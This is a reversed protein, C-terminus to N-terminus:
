PFVDHAAARAKPFVIIGGELRGERGLQVIDRGLGEVLGDVLHLTREDAGLGILDGIVEMDDDAKPQFKIQEFAFEADGVQWCGPVGAVLLTQAEMRRVVTVPHQLINVPEAAGNPPRKLAVGQAIDHGGLKVGGRQAGVRRNGVLDCLPLETSQM